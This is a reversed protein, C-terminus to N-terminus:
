RQRGRRGAARQPRQAVGRDLSPLLVQVLSSKGIGAEGSILVVSGRGATADAVAARLAALEADRELVAGAM